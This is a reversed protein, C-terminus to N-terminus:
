FLPRHEHRGFQCLQEVVDQGAADVVDGALRREIRRGSQGLTQVVLHQELAFIELRDEAELQAARVVLDRMESLLLARAADDGRAGPIVRLADGVGRLLQPQARDDDHRLRRRADLHIRHLRHAGFHHQGAVVVILGLRVAVRDHGLGPHGENMREVIRQHDGSLARDASFDQPVTLFAERGYEDGHASASEDGPDGAVDLRQTGVDLDDADLCELGVRHVARKREAATYLELVDPDEGVAHRHALYPLPRKRDGLLRDIFHQAHGVVLDARRDLIDEVVGARHHLRGTRQGDGSHLGPNLALACSILREDRQEAAGVDVEIPQAENGLAGLNTFRALREDGDRKGSFGPENWFNQETM